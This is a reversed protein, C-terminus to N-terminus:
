VRGGVDLAATDAPPLQADAWFRGDQVGYCLLSALLISYEKRTADDKITPQCGLLRGTMFAAAPIFRDAEIGAAEADELLRLWLAAVVRWDGDSLMEKTIRQLEAADPEPIHNQALEEPTLRPESM